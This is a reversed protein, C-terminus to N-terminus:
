ASAQPLCCLPLCQLARNRQTPDLTLFLHAAAARMSELAALRDERAGFAQHGANTVNQMRRTNARLTEAFSSWAGLQDETVCLYHKLDSIFGRAPMAVPTTRPPRAMMRAPIASTEIM